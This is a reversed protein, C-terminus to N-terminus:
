GGYGSGNGNLSPKENWSLAKVPCVPICFGCKICDPGIIRLSREDMEICDAPCIGVCGGCLDCLRPNVLVPPDAVIDLRAKVKPM